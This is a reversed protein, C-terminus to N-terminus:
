STMVWKQPKRRKAKKSNPTNNASSVTTEMRPISIKNETIATKFKRWLYSNSALQARSNTALSDQLLKKTNEKSVAKSGLMLEGRQRNFEVGALVLKDILSTEEPSFKAKPLYKTKAEDGYPKPKTEDRNDKIVPTVKTSLPTSDIIDSKPLIPTVDAPISNTNSKNSSSLFKSNNSRWYNTGSDGRIPTIRSADDRHRALRRAHDAIKTWIDTTSDSGINKLDSATLRISKETESVLPDPQTLPDVRSRKFNRYEELENQNVLTFVKARKSM